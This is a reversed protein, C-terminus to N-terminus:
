PLRARAADLLADAPPTPYPRSARWYKLVRVLHAQGKGLDMEVLSEDPALPDRGNNFLAIKRSRQTAIDGYVADSCRVSGERRWGMM